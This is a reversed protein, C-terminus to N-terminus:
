GGDLICISRLTDGFSFYAQVHFCFIAPVPLSVDPHFRMTYSHVQWRVRSVLKRLFIRNKQLTSRNGALSFTVCVQTVVTCTHASRVADITPIYMAKHAEVSTSYSSVRRSSLGSVSFPTNRERLLANEMSYRKVYRCIKFYLISSIYLPHFTASNIIISVFKNSVSFNCRYFRCYLTAVMSPSVYLYLAPGVPWIPFIRM